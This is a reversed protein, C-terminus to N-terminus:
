LTGCTNCRRPDEDPYNGDYYADGMGPAGCDPCPGPKTHREQRNEQKAQVVLGADKHRLGVTLDRRRYKSVM